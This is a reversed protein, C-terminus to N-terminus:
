GNVTYKGAGLNNEQETRFCAADTEVQNACRAQAENVRVPIWPKDNHTAHM